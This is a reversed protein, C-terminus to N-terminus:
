HREGFLASGVRIHTAGEQIAVEFDGSMGMSLWQAGVQEGLERLRRFYPRMQEPDSLNPGITMLGRFRVHLSQIVCQLLDDVSETSIGSKQSENAINLELLGGVDRGAKDIERIQTSSELTHIVPFHQAAKKAKNSQLKGIFHWTVDDPLAEIKPLAEQLRSEGFDRLGLEYAEQIKEIPVTKTVAILTIDTPRRNASKSAAEIRRHIDALNDSLM